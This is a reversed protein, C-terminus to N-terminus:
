PRSNKSCPPTSSRNSLTNNTVGTTSIMSRRTLAYAILLVIEMKPAVPEMPRWVSSTASCSPSRTAARVAWALASRISAWHRFNRGLSATIVSSAAALSRATRSASVSVATSPPGSASVSAAAAGSASVTTVATTPM